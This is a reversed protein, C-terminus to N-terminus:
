GQLGSGHAPERHNVGPAQLHRRQRDVAHHPLRGSIKALPIRERNAAMAAALFIADVQEQTYSAYANQAGRLRAFAQELSEVSDVPERKWETKM